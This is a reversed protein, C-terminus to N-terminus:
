DISLEIIISNLKCCLNQVVHYVDHVFMMVIIICSQMLTIMFTRILYHSCQMYIGRKRSIVIIVVFLIGCVVVAVALLAGLSGSISALLNVMPKHM